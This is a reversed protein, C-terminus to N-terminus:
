FEGRTTFLKRTAVVKGADLAEDVLRTILKESKQEYDVSGSVPTEGDYSDAGVSGKFMSRIQALRKALDFWFPAGLGILLGTILTAIVAALSGAFSGSTQSTAPAGPEPVCASDSGPKADVLHCHPAYSWGIPIGIDELGSLQTQLLELRQNIEELGNTDGSDAAAELRARAKESQEVLNDMQAVMTATLAPNAMFAEYIRLANVNMVLALMLGIFVSWNHSNNKFRTKAAACLQNYETNFERLNRLLQDRSDNIVGPLTLLQRFVHETSVWDYVCLSKAGFVDGFTPDKLVNRQPSASKDNAVPDATATWATLPNCIITTVFDYDSANGRFRNKFSRDFIVRFLEIQGKSKLGFVRFVIEMIVTVATALAALTVALAITADLLEM